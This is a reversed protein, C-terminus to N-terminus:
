AKFKAIKVAKPTPTGEGPLQMFSRKHTAGLSKLAIAASGITGSDIKKGNAAVAYAATRNALRVQTAEGV